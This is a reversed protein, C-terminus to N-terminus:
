LRLKHNKGEVDNVSPLCEMKQQVSGFMDSINRQRYKDDKERVKKWLWDPHTVRPVPNTVQLKYSWWDIIYNSYCILFLSRLFSLLQVKQMAAPITIIKQIASCLRQRYYDWDVIIRSFISWLLFIHPCPMCNLSYMYCTVFRCICSPKHFM